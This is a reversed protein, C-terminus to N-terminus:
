AQREGETEPVCWEMDDFTAQRTSSVTGMNQTPPKPHTALETTVRWSRVPKKVVKDNSDHVMEIKPVEVASAEIHKAHKDPETEM